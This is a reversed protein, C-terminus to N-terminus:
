PEKGYDHGLLSPAAVGHPGPHPKLTEPGCLVRSLHGGMWRAKTKAAVACTVPPTGLTRLIVCGDASCMDEGQPQCLGHVRQQAKM